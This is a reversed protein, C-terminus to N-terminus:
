RITIKKFVLLLLLIIMLLPRKKSTMQKLLKLKKLATLRTMQRPFMRKTKLLNKKGESYDDMEIIFYAADANLVSDMASESHALQIPLLYLVIYKGCINILFSLAMRYSRCYSSATQWRYDDKREENTEEIDKVDADREKEKQEEFADNRGLANHIEKDTEEIDKVDASKEKEDETQSNDELRFTVVKSGQDACGNVCAWFDVKLRLEKFTTKSSEAMAKFSMAVQILSGLAYFGYTIQDSYDPPGRNILLYIYLILLAVQCISTPFVLVHTSCLDQYLNQATVSVFNKITGPNDGKQSIGLVLQPINQPHIANWSCCRFTCHFLWDCLM